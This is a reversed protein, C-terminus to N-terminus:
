ADALAADTSDYFDLLRDLALLRFLEHIRPRVSALRLWGGHEGTTRHADVFLGVGGSDCFTMDALDLVVRHRGRQQLVTIEDRLLPATDHDLEGVVTIVTIDATVGRSTVSLPPTSM